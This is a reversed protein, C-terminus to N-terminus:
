SAVEALRAKIASLLEDTSAAFAAKVAVWEFADTAGERRALTVQSALDAAAAKHTRAERQAAALMGRLRQVEALLYAVDRGSDVCEASSGEDPRARAADALGPLLRHVQGRAWVIRGSPAQPLPSTPGHDWRLQHACEALVEAPTLDTLTAASRALLVALMEPDATLPVGIRVAQTSTDPMQPM